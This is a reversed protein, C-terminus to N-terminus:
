VLEQVKFSLSIVKVINFDFVTNYERDDYCSSSITPSLLRQKHMTIFKNMVKSIVSPCLNSAIKVLCDLHLKAFKVTHHGNVSKFLLSVYDRNDSREVRDDDILIQITKIKSSIM